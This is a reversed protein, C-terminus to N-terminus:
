CIRYCLRRAFAEKAWIFAKDIYEPGIIDFWQSHENGDRLGYNKDSICENVVDVGMNHRTRAYEAEPNGLGVILYM